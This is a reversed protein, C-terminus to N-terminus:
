FYLAYDFFLTTNDSDFDYTTTGLDIDGTINAYSLGFNFAFIESFPFWNFGFALGIGSGQIDFDDDDETVSLGILGVKIYPILDNGPANTIFNYRGYIETVGVESDDDEVTGVIASTAIGLEAQGWSYAYGATLQSETSEIDTGGDIYVTLATSTYRVLLSHERKRLDSGQFAEQSKVVNKELVENDDEAALLPSTIAALLVFLLFRPM